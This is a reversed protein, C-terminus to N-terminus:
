FVGNLVVEKIRFPVLKSSFCQKTGGSRMGPPVLGTSIWRNTDGGARLHPVLCAAFSLNTGDPLLLPLILRHKKMM